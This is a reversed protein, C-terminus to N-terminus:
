LPCKKWADITDAKYLYYQNDFYSGEDTVYKMWCLLFKEQIILKLNTNKIKKYAILILKFIRWVAKYPSYMGSRKEM